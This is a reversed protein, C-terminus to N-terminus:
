KKGGVASRRGGLYATTVDARGHGLMEGIKERARRDEVRDARVGDGVCPAMHGTLQQYKQCAWAARLDHITTLGAQRLAPLAVAHAHRRFAIWTQDAPILCAGEGQLAAARALADMGAVDVEVWRPVYRGRGGKTGRRVDIAGRHRAQRLAKRTDLLAAERMRLGFFRAFELLSAVRPEGEERLAAAVALVSDRDMGAPATTRISSRAGIRQRPSVSICGDGRLAKLVVNVSSLLNVAYSVAMEDAAVRGALDDGYREVLRLTVDRADRVGNAHCWRAFVAWRLSHAAVTAFHGQYRAQLCHKGAFKM